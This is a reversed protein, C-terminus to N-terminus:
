KVWRNIELNVKELIYQKQNKNDIGNNTCEGVLAHILAYLMNDLGIINVMDEAVTRKSDLESM